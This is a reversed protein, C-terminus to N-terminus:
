FDARSRFKKIGDIGQRVAINCLSDAETRHYRYTPFEVKEILAGLESARIYFDNDDGYPIDSFGELRKFLDRRIFFTGGVICESVPILKSHDFIDTVMPDGIVEVGGHLLEIAPKASLIEARTQLHGPLYEDDSDLFTIYRGSAFSAGFNRAAAAGQNKSFHYTIRQDVDSFIRVVDGTNDSSGDDMVIMEWDSFDQALVSEIARSLLQARNFTPIIISFNMLASCQPSLVSHMEEASLV